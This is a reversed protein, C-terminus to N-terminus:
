NKAQLPLANAITILFIKESNNRQKVNKAILQRISQGQQGM